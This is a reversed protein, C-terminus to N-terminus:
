PIFGEFVCGDLAVVRQVGIGPLELWPMRGPLLGLADANFPDGLLGATVLPYMASSLQDPTCGAEALWIEQAALFGGLPGPLLLVVFGRERAAEPSRAADLDWSMPLERAGLALMGIAQGTMLPRQADAGWPLRGSIASRLLWRRLSKRLDRTLIASAAM